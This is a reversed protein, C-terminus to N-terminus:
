HNKHYFKYEDPDLILDSVTSSCSMWYPGALKMFREYNKIVNKSSSIFHMKDLVMNEIIEKYNGPYCQSGHIAFNDGLYSIIRTLFIEGSEYDPVSRVTSIVTNTFLENFKTVKSTSLIEQYLGLRSGKMISHFDPLFKRIPEPLDKNELMFTLFHDILVENTKLNLPFDCFIWCYVLWENDYDATLFVPALKKWCVNLAPFKNGEICAIAYFLLYHMFEYMLRFGKPGKTNKTISELLKYMQKFNRCDDFSLDDLKIEPPVINKWNM